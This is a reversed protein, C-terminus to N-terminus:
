SPQNDKLPEIILGIMLGIAAGPLAGIFAGLFAAIGAWQLIESIDTESRNEHLYGLRGFVIAGM